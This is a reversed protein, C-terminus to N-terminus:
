QTKCTKAERFDCDHCSFDFFLLDDGFQNAIDRLSEIHKFHTTGIYWRVESQFFHRNESKKYYSVDTLDSGERINYINDTNEPKKNNGVAFCIFSETM